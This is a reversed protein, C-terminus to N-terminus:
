YVRQLKHLYINMYILFLLPGLASGQPIGGLMHKWESFQNLGKVRHIRELLKQLVPLSLLSHRWNEAAFYLTM